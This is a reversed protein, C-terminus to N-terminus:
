AHNPLLHVALIQAGKVGCQICEMHFSVDILLMAAPRARRIRGNPIRAVHKCRWRQAMVVHSERLDGVRIQDAPISRGDTM